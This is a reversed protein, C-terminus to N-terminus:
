EYMRDRNSFAGSELAKLRSLETSTIAGHLQVISVGLQQCFHDVDHADYLYSILVGYTPPQLSRIIAAAEEESLDQQHVTLRLPFGLYQVGCEILMQAEAADKIGAVQIFRKM